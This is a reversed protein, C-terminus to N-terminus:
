RRDTPSFPDIGPAVSDVDRIEGDGGHVVLEVGGDAPLLARARDIGDAQTETRAIARGAAPRTVQLGGDAHPLAHRENRSGM